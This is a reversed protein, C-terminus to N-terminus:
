KKTTTIIDIMKSKQNKTIFFDNNVFKSQHKVASKKSKKSSKNVNEMQM